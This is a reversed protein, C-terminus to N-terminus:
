SAPLHDLYALIRGAARDQALTRQGALVFVLVHPLAAVGRGVVLPKEQCTRDVHFVVSLCPTIRDRAQNKKSEKLPTM